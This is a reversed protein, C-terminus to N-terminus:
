ILEGILSGSFNCREEFPYAQDAMFEKPHYFLDRTCVPSRGYEHSM